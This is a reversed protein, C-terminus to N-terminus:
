FTFRRTLTVAIQAQPANAPSGAGSITGGQVKGTMNLDVDGAGGFVSQSQPMFNKVQVKANFKDDKEDFSGVYYYGSDGGLVQGKMLVVVGGGIGLPGRFEVTWLGDIMITQEERLDPAHGASKSKVTPRVAM